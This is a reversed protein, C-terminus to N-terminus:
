GIIDEMWDAWALLSLDQGFRGVLQVGLPLGKRGIGGPLTICPVGLLSWNRNYLSSGSTDLGLPAEGSASPALVFDVNRILQAFESRALHTRHLAATYASRSFDRGRQLHQRLVSSLKEPFNDFEFALARAGEFNMIDRQDAYQHFLNDSLAIEEIVAGNAKLQEITFHLCNQYDDDVDSWYPTRCLGIKPSKSLLEPTPPFDALVSAMLGVDSVSRAMIGITDLSEALSKIGARNILGFSPKYGVIGCYAAPRITSGGTQTTLSAPVMFDAVAAASGSSSGGPTHAVNHPNRTRAPRTHAFESTTNKGLIIGGARKIAAVCYADWAPRYGAYLPSGYGAPMGAADIVDKIGFPIGRLPRTSDPRDADYERAQELARAIDIYAWAGVESERSTIRNLCAVLLAEASIDRADLAARAEILGLENLAKM